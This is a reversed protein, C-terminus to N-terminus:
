IKLIAVHQRLRTNRFVTAVEKSNSWDNGFKISMKNNILKNIKLGIFQGFAVRRRGSVDSFLFRMIEEETTINM